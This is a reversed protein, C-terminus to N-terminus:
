HNTATYPPLLSYIIHAHTCMHTHIYATEVKIDKDNLVDELQHYFDGVSKDLGNIYSSLEEEYM